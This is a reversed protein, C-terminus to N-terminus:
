PTAQEDWNMRLRKTVQKINLQEADNGADVSFTFSKDQTMTMEQVTDGLETLSGFRTSGSRTYDGVPVSDVSYIKISKVGSFDYSKGAYADTLSRQTFREAVKDSFKSALNIAM